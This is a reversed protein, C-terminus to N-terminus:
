DLPDFRLAPFAMPVEPSVGDHYRSAPDDPDLSASATSTRRMVFAYAGPVALLTALTAATLGGVVAMGLPASADGGEAVGFAMPVMGAIMALSTM